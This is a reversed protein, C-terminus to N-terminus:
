HEWNDYEWRILARFADVSAQATKNTGTLQGTEYEKYPYWDVYGLYRCETTFPANSYTCSFTIENSINNALLDNLNTEFTRDWNTCNDQWNTTWSGATYNTPEPAWTNTSWNTIVVPSIGLNTCELSALDDVHIAYYTITTCTQLANSSVNNTYTYVRLDEYHECYPPTPGVDNTVVSAEYLEWTSDVNTYSVCYTVTSATAVLQTPIWDLTQEMDEVLTSYCGNSLTPLGSNTPTASLTNVSVVFNTRQYTVSELFQVKVVNDTWAVSEEPRTYYFDVALSGVSCPNTIALRAFVNSTFSRGYVNTDADRRAAQGEWNTRSEGVGVISTGDYRAYAAMNIGGTFSWVHVPGSVAINTSFTYNTCHQASVNTYPCDASDLWPPWSQHPPPDPMTPGLNDWNTSASSGLNTTLLECVQGTAGHWRPSWATWQMKSLALGIEDLAEVWLRNLDDGYIAVTNSYGVWLVDGTAGSGSVTINTIDVWQRTCDTRAGTIAVVESGNTPAQNTTSPIYTGDILVSVSPVSASVPNTVYFVRPVDAQYFATDFVGVDNFAWGSGGTCVVQGLTWASNTRSPYETWYADGATPWFTDDQLTVGSVNTVHGIGYYYFFRLKSGFPFDRCVDNTMTFWDDALDAAYGWNTLVCLPMLEEVKDRITDLDQWTLHVRINHPYTAGAAYYAGFANTVTIAEDLWYTNTYTFGDITVVANSSWAWVRLTKVLNWLNTAKYATSNREWTAWFLRKTVNTSLERDTNWTGVFAANDVLPFGPLRSDPLTGLAWLGALGYLACVTILLKKM